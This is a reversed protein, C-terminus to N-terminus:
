ITYEIHGVHVCYLEIIIMLVILILKKARSVEYLQVLGQIRAQIQPSLPVTFRNLTKNWASTYTETIKFHSKNTMSEGIISLSPPTRVIM